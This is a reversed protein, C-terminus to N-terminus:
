KTMRRSASSRSRAKAKALGSVFRSKSSASFTSTNSKRLSRLAKAGPRQWELGLRVKEADELARLEIPALKLPRFAGAGETVQM